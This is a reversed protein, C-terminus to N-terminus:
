NRAAISFTLSDTYRGTKYGATRVNNRTRSRVIVDIRSVQAPTATVNGNADFYSLTLGAPTGGLPLYPGSVPQPSTCAPSRTSLCDSFGVYGLGDPGNYLEYRSRRFFRIAAGTQVTAPLAASLALTFSNASEATNATFTPCLGAAPNATLAVARWQDDASAPTPGQDYVLLSDGALPAVLWATAGSQSTTVLPPITISTRAVNITCMVSAGTSGRYDISSSTMAYIDGSAPSIARLESPLIDAAQRVNARAELVEATGGYFRQQQIIATTLGTLVLGLLVMAVMLETLTFGRRRSLM